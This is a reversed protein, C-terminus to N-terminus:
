RQSGGIPHADVDPSTDPSPNPADSPRRDGRAQLPVVRGTVSRERDLVERYVEEYRDAMREASFRELVSARIVERDLRAVDDVHFALQVPDDGFYGDVDERIIEPLAGVRTAIVPTGCALSEIAVLGFPEPWAGPMLTAWCEALLQDRESSSLEGVHEVDATEFAPKVVSEFYAVESPQWGVKGAVRLRRGTLRAVEIAQLIGKEPMLRGVFCLDDSRRNSFTSESLDLGNHVVAAWPAGPHTSAQAQSIAILAARSIDIAERAGPFDIRGHFTAVVPTVTLHGLVLGSFDLHAHIIDFRSAQDLVAAQTAVLWPIGDSHIGTARLAVPATVVLEGPVDSDGTAFVTVSHGRADLTTALAHVIRETGGYAGPPVREFPPAVLAIRLSQDILAKGTFREQL